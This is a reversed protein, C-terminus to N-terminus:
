ESKSFHRYDYSLYVTVDFRGAIVISLVDVHCALARVYAFMNFIMIYVLHFLVLYRMYM